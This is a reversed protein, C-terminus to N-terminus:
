QGELGLLYALLRKKQDDANRYEIIIQKEYDTLTSESIDHVNQSPKVMDMPVEDSGMLWAPNVRLTNALLYLNASNAKYKGSRYCSISAKDIGTIRALEQSKMDRKDMAIILREAFNNNKM